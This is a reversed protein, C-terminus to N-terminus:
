LELARLLAEFEAIAKDDRDATEWIGKGEAQAARWAARRILPTDVYRLSDTQRLQDAAEANYRSNHWADAMNLFTVAQLRENALRADHVLRAMADVSWAEFSGPVNPILVLRAIILACRLADTDGGGVDLITIEHKRALQRGDNRVALGTLRTATYGADGMIQHRLQTFDSATGQPDADILLTDRSAQSFHMALATALSTKGVGGKVHAVALIDM